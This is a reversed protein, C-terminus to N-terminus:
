SLAAVTAGVVTAGIPITCAHLRSIAHVDGGKLAAYVAVDARNCVTSHLRPALTCADIM